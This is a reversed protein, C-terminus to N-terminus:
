EHKHQYIKFPIYWIPVTIVLVSVLLANCIFTAMKVAVDAMEWCIPELYETTFRELLKYLAIM